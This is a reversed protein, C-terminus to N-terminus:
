PVIKGKYNMIKSDIHTKNNFAGNVIEDCREVFLEVNNGMRGQYLHYVTNDFTTGVGYYGYNGLPWVGEVPEREFTTPYLCRYRIGKAEAVYSFEEAVDGRPTETFSTSVKSWCEKHVAFFPPAAYTHSKPHIHNSAQAIGLFTKNRQVYRICEIFKDFNIPVCDADLFCIVDAASFSCVQDMWKGHLFNNGYYNVPLKFHEMVKKHSDVIRSDTNDWHLTHIEFKM